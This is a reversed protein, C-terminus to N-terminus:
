DCSGDDSAEVDLADRVFKDERGHVFSALSHTANARAEAREKHIMYQKVFRYTANLWETWASDLMSKFGADTRKEAAKVEDIVRKIELSYAYVQIKEFLLSECAVSSRKGKEESIGLATFMRVLEDARWLIRAAEGAPPTSSAEEAKCYALEEEGAKPGTLACYCKKKRELVREAIEVCSLMQDVAEVTDDLTKELGQQKDDYEKQLDQVGGKQTNSLGDTCSVVEDLLNENASLSGFKSFLSGDISDRVQSYFAVIKPIDMYANELDTPTSQYKKLTTWLDSEEAENPTEEKLKEILKSARDGSSGLPAFSPCHDGAQSISSTM